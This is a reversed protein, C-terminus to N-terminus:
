IQEVKGYFFVNIDMLLLTFNKSENCDYTLRSNIFFDTIFNNYIINCILTQIVFNFCYHLNNQFM